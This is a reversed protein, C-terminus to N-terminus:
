GYSEVPVMLQLSGPRTCVELEGAKNLFEGDIHVPAGEPNKLRFQAARAIRVFPSLHLKRFLAMMTFSPLHIGPFPRVMVIDLLGDHTVADPAIIANNGYQSTNAFAILFFAEDIFQGDLEFQYRRPRYTQLEEMICRAYTMYGRKDQEAFTKSIQGDFGTGSVNFFPHGNLTATDLYTPQSRNLQQLAKLPQTSLGFHRAFGNGSGLPIVGLAADSDILGAAVENITGDGGVAVLVDFDRHRQRALEKGHGAHETV